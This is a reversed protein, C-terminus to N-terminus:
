APDTRPRRTPSPRDRNVTLKGPSKGSCHAEESGGGLSVQVSRLNAWAPRLELKPHRFRLLVCPASAGDCM